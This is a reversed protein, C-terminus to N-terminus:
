EVDWYHVLEPYLVAANYFASPREHSCFPCVTRDQRKRNMKNPTAYWKQGCVRCKWEVLKGSSFGICEPPLPNDADMYCSLLEEWHRSECWSKLDIMSVGM